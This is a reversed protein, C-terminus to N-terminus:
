EAPWLRFASHGVWFGPSSAARVDIYEISYLADHNRLKIISISVWAKVVHSTAASPPTMESPKTSEVPLGAVMRSESLWTPASAMVSGSSDQVFYNNNGFYTLVGAIKIKHILENPGRVQFLSDIKRPAMAFGNSFAMGM